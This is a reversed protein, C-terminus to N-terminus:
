RSEAPADTVASLRSHPERRLKHDAVSELLYNPESSDIENRRLVVFDGSVTAPYSGSIRVCQGIDFPTPM